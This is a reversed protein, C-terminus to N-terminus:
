RLSLARSGLFLALQAGVDRRRNHVPTASLLLVHADRCLRAAAVYRRTNTSRLHHAEDVVVLDAPAITSPDRRSLGELSVVVIPVAAAEAARRWLDRLAAPAIVMPNAYHRAVGLATYTKGVGVHDALLAGGDQGLMQLLHEAGLRQHDRLAVSGLSASVPPGPTLLAKAIEHKATQLAAEAGSRTM